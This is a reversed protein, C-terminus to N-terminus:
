LAIREGARSHPCAQAALVSTSWIQIEGAMNRLTSPTIHECNADARNLNAGLKNGLAADEPPWGQLLGRKRLPQDGALSQDAHWRALILLDHWAGRTILFVVPELLLLVPFDDVSGASTLFFGVSIRRLGVSKGNFSKYIIFPFGVSIRSFDM